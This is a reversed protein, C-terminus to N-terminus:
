RESYSSIRMKLCGLTVTCRFRFSCVNDFSKVFDSIHIFVVVDAYRQKLM